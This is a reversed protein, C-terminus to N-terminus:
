FHYCQKIRGHKNRWRDLKIQMYTINDITSNDKLKEAIRKAKGENYYEISEYVYYISTKGIRKFINPSINNDRYKSEYLIKFM